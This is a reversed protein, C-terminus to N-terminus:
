FFAINGVTDGCFDTFFNFSKIFYLEVYKNRFLFDKSKNLENKKYIKEMKMVWIIM